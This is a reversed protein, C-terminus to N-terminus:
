NNEKDLEKEEKLKKLETDLIEITGDEDETMITKGNKKFELM